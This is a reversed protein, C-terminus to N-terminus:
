HFLVVLFHICWRNHNIYAERPLKCNRERSCETFIVSVSSLTKYKRHSSFDQKKWSTVTGLHQNWSGIHQGPLLSFFCWAFATSAEMKFTNRCIFHIYGRIEPLALTRNLLILFLFVIMTEWAKPWYSHPTKNHRKTQTNTKLLAQFGLM